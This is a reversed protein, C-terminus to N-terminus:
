KKFEWNIMLDDFQKNPLPKSFYYGQISDCGLESLYDLQDKTEVGEAVVELSLSHAMAMIAEVLAKDEADDPVDRVFARDIKLTHFDYKKLYSLSSYGTGFDDLLILVGLEKLAKLAEDVTGGDEEDVLLSETVEIRLHKAELGTEKLTRKVVAAFDEGKFQRVSVNVSVYDPANDDKAWEAAQICATKLIWEGMPVILGIDEALPIFDVPSVPGLQPNNWRLLAEAGVVTQNDTKVIPQYYLELEDFEQARRLFGEMQIRKLADSHMEEAFFQFNNRGEDKARHMASGSNRLIVHPDNGDNPVIAIGMSATVTVEHEGLLFPEAFSELIRSAVIEAYDDHDIPLIILFEDGGLRALTGIEPVYHKLRLSAEVLLQDGVNHGLTENVKKFTDLGVIIAAVSEKDRQARVMAESLRDHALVRNPIGTLDDYNAQYILKDEYEKKLTIDERVSLFHKIEGNNKIPSVTVSEWLDDGNKKKNLVEGRWCEGGKVTAMMDEIREKYGETKDVDVISKGILDFSKYGTVSEFKRNTYEILGDPKIIVISSMSQEVAQSLTQLSEESKCRQLANSIVEAIVNLLAIDHKVWQKKDKLNNLMLFGALRGQTSVPVILASRMGVNQFITKEKAAKKSLKHVDPIYVSDLMELKELVWPYNDANIPVLDDLTPLTDDICCSFTNEFIDTKDNLQFLHVQDIASFNGLTLLTKEIKSHVDVAETNIFETSIKSVLTDMDLRHNLLESTEKRKQIDRCNIVFGEVGRVDPMNTVRGEFYLWKGKNTKVRFDPISITTNYNDQANNIAKLFVDLDDPHVLDDLEKGYLDDASFGIVKSVSPSIYGFGQEKHYIITIDTTNETIKRFREESEEIKRELKQRGKVELPILWFIFIFLLAIAAFVRINQSTLDQLQFAGTIIADTKTQAFSDVFANFIHSNFLESCGILATALLIVGITARANRIHGYNAVYLVLVLLWFSALVWYSIITILDVM